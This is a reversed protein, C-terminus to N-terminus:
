RRGTRGQGQRQGSPRETKAGKAQGVVHDRRAEFFRELHDHREHAFPPGIKFARVVGGALENLLGQARPGAPDRQQDAALLGPPNAVRREM